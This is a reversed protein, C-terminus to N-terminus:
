KSPSVKPDPSCHPRQLVMTGASSNIHFASAGLAVCDKPSDHNKSSADIFVRVQVHMACHQMDAGLQLVSAGQVGLTDTRLHPHRYAQFNSGHSDCQLSGCYSFRALSLKTLSVLSAGLDIRCFRAVLNGAHDIQIVHVTSGRLQIWILAGRPQGAADTRYWLGEPWGGM